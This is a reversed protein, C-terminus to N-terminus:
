MREARSSVTLPTSRTPAPQDVASSTLVDSLDNMALRAAAAPSTIRSRPAVAVGDRAVDGRRTSSRSRASMVKEYRSSAMTGSLLEMTPDADYSTLRSLGSSSTLDDVGGWGASSLRNEPRSAVADNWMTSSYSDRLSQLQAAPSNADDLRSRALYSSTAVDSSRDGYRSTGGGSDNVVRATLRDNTNDFRSFPSSSTTLPTLRGSYSSSSSTARIPPETTVGNRYPSSPMRKEMKPSAVDETTSRPVLPNGTLPSVASSNNSSTSWPSLLSERQGVAGNAVQCNPLEARNRTSSPPSVSSTAKVTNKRSAENAEVLETFGRYLQFTQKSDLSGSFCIL